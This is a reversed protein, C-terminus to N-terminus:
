WVLPFCTKLIATYVFYLDEAPRPARSKNRSLSESLDWIFIECCCDFVSFSLTNNVAHISRPINTRTDWHPKTQASHPQAHKQLPTQAHRQSHTLSLHTVPQWYSTNQSQWDTKTEPDDDERQRNIMFSFSFTQKRYLEKKLIQM